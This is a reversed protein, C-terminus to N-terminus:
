PARYAATFRKLETADADAVAAFDMDRDSWVIVNFGRITAEREPYPAGDGRPWSFVDIVHSHLRYVVAVAQQDGLREVRAGVLEFGQASLDRVLPAFALRGQFWPRVVHRDSSAVDIRPGTPTLAAVHRAVAVDPFADLARPQALWWGALAGVVATSGGLVLAQWWRLVVPRSVPQAAREIARLISRRMAPPAAHRLSGARLAQRMAVRQGHPAACAPCSALHEAMEAATAADIEDDVYADLMRLALACNM